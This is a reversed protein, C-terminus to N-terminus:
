EARAYCLPAPPHNARFLIHTLEWHMSKQFSFPMIFALEGDCESPGIFLPSWPEQSLGPVLMERLHEIDKTDANMLEINDLDLVNTFLRTFEVCAQGTPTKHVVASGEFGADCVHKQHSGKLIKGVVL